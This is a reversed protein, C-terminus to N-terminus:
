SKSLAGVVQEGHSDTPDFNEKQITNSTKVSMIKNLDLFQEHIDLVLVKESEFEWQLELTMERLVELM